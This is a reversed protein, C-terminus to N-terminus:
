RAEVGFRVNSIGLQAMQRCLENVTANQSLRDGRILIQIRSPINDVKELERGVIYVTEAISKESGSIKIVGERTVNITLSTPVQDEAGKLVPLELREENVRTIQSVTMFFIILLFVIDIMPTMNMM